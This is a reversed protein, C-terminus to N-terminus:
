PYWTIVKSKAVRERKGGVRIMRETFKVISLHSIFCLVLELFLPRSSECFLLGTGSLIRFILDFKTEGLATIVLWLTDISIRSKSILKYFRWLQLPIWFPFVWLLTTPWYIEEYIFLSFQYRNFEIQFNQLPKKLFLNDMCLQLPIILEFFQLKGFLQYFHPFGFLNAPEILRFLSAYFHSSPLYYQIFM